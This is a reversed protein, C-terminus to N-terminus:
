FRYGVGTLFLLSSARQPPFYYVNTSYQGKQLLAAVTLDAGHYHIYTSGGEFRLLMHSLARSSPSYEAVLGTDLAFDIKPHLYFQDLNPTYVNEVDTRSFRMIGPRAKAFLGLGGVHFGVKPGIYAAFTTGGDQVNATHDDHPHDFAIADGSCRWLPFGVWAGGGGEARLDTELLHERMEMPFLAGVSFGTKPKEAAPEPMESLKGFRHGVTLSASAHYPVVGYSIQDVYPSTYFTRQFEALLLEDLDFRVFTRRRPYFELAVGQQLAFHTVCGFVPPGQLSSAVLGHSYSAVGAESTGYVGFWQRRIGVKVGGLALLQRGGEHDGVAVGNGSQSVFSEVGFTRNVNFTYRAAPGALDIRYQGFGASPTGGNPTDSSASVGVAFEHRSLEQAQLHRSPVLSACLLLAILLFRGV